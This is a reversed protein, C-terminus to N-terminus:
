QLFIEVVKSYPIRLKTGTIDKTKMRLKEQQRLSIGLEEELQKPTIWDNSFSTKNEM